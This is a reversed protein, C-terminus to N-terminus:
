SKKYTKEINESTIFGKLNHYSKVGFRDAIIKLDELSVNGNSTIKNAYYIMGSRQILKATLGEIGLVDSVMQIRRYIVFKDVPNNFNETKTISARIVYENDVLDNFPRVHPNYDMDGNRKVYKSQEIAGNILKFLHDDEIDIYRETFKVPRGNEDEKLSNTLKIRRTEVDIDSKKLNRLESMQKGGVGSFLLGLIVADQYNALMESWRRVQSYTFYEENNTLYKTFDDPKLESMHNTEALGNSVSWNLYGSIIRSYTEVTNRNNAKFGRMIAEIEEFSFQNVDKGLAEEMPQVLGFIREYNRATEDTINNMSIMESLFQRKVDENFLSSNSVNM